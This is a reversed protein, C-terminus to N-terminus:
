EEPCDHLDYRKEYQTISRRVHGAHIFGMQAYDKAEVIEEESLFPSASRRTERLSRASRMRTVTKHTITQGASPSAKVRTGPSPTPSPCPSTSRFLPHINQERSALCETSGTPSDLNLTSATPSVQVLNDLSQHLHLSPERRLSPMSRVSGSGRLLPRNDRESPSPLQLHQEPDSREQSSRSTTSTTDVSGHKNTSPELSLTGDSYRNSRRPYKRLSGRRTDFQPLEPYSDCIAPAPPAVTTPTEPLTKLEQSLNYSHPWRLVDSQPQFAIILLSGCFSGETFVSIGWFVSRAIWLSSKTNTHDAAMSGATSAAAIILYAIALFLIGIKWRPLARNQTIEQQVLLTLMILALFSVVSLSVPALDTAPNSSPLSRVEGYALGNLITVIFVSLLSGAALSHLLMNSHM